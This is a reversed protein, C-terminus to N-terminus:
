WQPTLKFGSVDLYRFPLRSPFVCPATPWWTVWGISNQPPLRSLQYLLDDSILPVIFQNESKLPITFLCLRSGVYWPFHRFYSLSSPYIKLHLSFARSLHLTINLVQTRHCALQFTVACTCFGSKTKRRFPRTWKFRRSADTWDVVPLRPTRMLPLLPPYVMNRPLTLTSAVWEMRWKGRWKGERADGHAM